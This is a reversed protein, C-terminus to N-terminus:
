LVPFSITVLENSGQCAEVETVVGKIDKSKPHLQMIDACSGVSVPVSVGKTDMVTKVSTYKSRNYM